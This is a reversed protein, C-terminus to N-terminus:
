ALKPHSDLIRMLDMTSKLLQVQEQISGQHFLPRDKSHKRSIRALERKAISIGYDSITNWPGQDINGSQPSFDAALDTGFSRDSSPGICFSNSPDIRRDLEQCKLHNADAQLYLGGYAPFLIASLQAELKTLNKILELKEIEAMDGWQKFLPVGAAKEMIIYEAGVPNLNDSSWSIVRPVPISTHNRVYELAGATAAAIDCLADLDFKVYRRDLQRQEDVLFHGNTYAFLKRTVSLNADADMITHLRHAVSIITCDSFEERILRQMLKETEADVNGTAEDQVVIGSRRRLMATALSLLQKEGHSLTLTDMDVDLGGNNHVKDWLQVKELASIIKEETTTNLPDLNNRITGPLQLTEQPLAIISSRIRERPITSIDIGDIWISGSSLDLMRFLTLILSTKGSGTRGCIGVKQGAKISMSINKLTMMKSEPSFSATIDRIDIAGLAPWDAPPDRASVENECPTYQVFDKLRAIAGLSTELTTWSSILHALSQSFGLLNILALGIAGAGSTSRWKVAISVLVVAIGAVFLDLVLNLWRQCCYLLYYPKQSVDLHRLNQECFEDQWGFARITALGSLTETFHTYLPSKSELDLYRLQRSTRLYFKQILYVAAICFPIVISVYRAGSAILASEVIINLIDFTVTFAAMPLTQDVLSMDQSFRNLVTGSNTTSFFSFPAGMVSKLLLLHLREASKPIIFMLFYGVSLFSILVTAVGSSIYLGFYLEPKHSTGKETWIRLFIQPLRGLLVYLSALIAFIVTRLLGVSNFYYKYVTADGTQRNIDIVHPKPAPAQTSQLEAHENSISAAGSSPTDTGAETFLEKVYGNGFRLTSFDGRQTITGDEHLVIINDAAALHHVAHTALIVTLGMQRLLGNTDFLRSFVLSGTRNDLGSFVDDLVVLSIKSYIARALAIRQKQGGSLAIGGSGVLSADGNPLCELDVDLACAYLVTMYWECDLIGTGIINQRVTANFLWPTQDCYAASNSNVQILGKMIPVEGLLAKLLTSKGCGTPGIVVTFSSSKLNMNIMNLIPIPANASQFCGDKVILIEHEIKVNALSRKDTGHGAEHNAELIPSKELELSGDSLARDDAYVLRKVKRDEVLLFEQIRWFCGISAMFAPFSIMLSTLPVSILSIIALATFITAVGLDPRHETQVLFITATIVVAPTAQHSINAVVSLWVTLMRFRKSLDLEGIRLQQIEDSLYDTMGMIKIGKIQSLASSTIAVRTQIAKNWIMQTPRMLRAIPSISITCVIVPVVAFVCAIGVKRQLLFMGIGIEIINAWIEHLDQLGLVISDIDTSMLTVAASKDATDLALKTAKRYIVSVLAGRLMTLSRFTKHRYHCRSVAIGAYIVLTAGILAYSTNQTGNTPRTQVFNITRNILFPQGFTFAILCVRPFIASFLAGKLLFFSAILLAFKRRERHADWFHQLCDELVVSSFREEIECLDHISLLRRFGNRLLGNLWWFLSRNFVGSTSEVALHEYGAFLLRRKGVSELMLMVIKVTLSATFIAAVTKEDLRLWLTRAQVIDFLISFFLYASLITSPRVSRTHEIYSLISIFISAIFSLAAAPISCSTHPVSALSWLVLNVLQLLILASITVLKAILLRGKRAKPKQRCSRLICVLSIILFLASPGISLISQEFLLTFDFASVHAAVQPGFTNDDTKGLFNSNPSMSNKQVLPLLRSTVQRPNLTKGLCLSKNLISTQREPMGSM